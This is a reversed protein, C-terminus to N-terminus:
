ALLHALLARLQAPKVPKHMLELRQRAGHARMVESADATIILAPVRAAPVRAGPRDDGLRPRWPRSAPRRHHHRADLATDGLHDLAEDTSAAARVECQWRELLVRM